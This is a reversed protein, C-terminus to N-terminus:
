STGTTSRRRSGLVLLEAGTEGLLDVLSGARGEDTDSDAVASSM